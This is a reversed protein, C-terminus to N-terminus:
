ENSTVRQEELMDGIAAMIRKAIEDLAARDGKEYLDDLHLPKGYIVKVHSFKFFISHSPLLKETNVLAVPIVPVRARLAIMGIGAEPARLGKQPEYNRAGEPFLGVVEGHQLYDIAKRLAARDAAGRRVPFAGVKRILFGIIPVQFLEQKAMFHVQRPCGAGLAPPDIYSVHNGCLLVGGGRPINERGIVQWGGFGRCVCASLTRGVWYLATM